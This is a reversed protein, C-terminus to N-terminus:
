SEKRDNSSEERDERREGGAPSPQPLGDRLGDLVPSSPSKDDTWDPRVDLLPLRPKASVQGYGPGFLARGARAGTHEGAEVTVKGNVVVTHIGISFAHPAAFTATDLVEAPDFVVIDAFAGPKLTGRDVLGVQAAPLSTMKRIADELTLVREERVYRGLVRPFTGYARPHVRIKGLLGRPSTAEADTAISVWPMAMATRVDDESMSHYLAFVNARHAELLGFYVDWADQKRASAIASIRKGVADEDGGAPVSAVEIADFDIRGLLADRSEMESRIRARAAADRLRAVVADPGGEQAWDPMPAALGTGAVAYPYQCASVRVRRQRAAELLACLAPMKGWSARGAVKLHFVVVPLSAGEGIAIAEGVSDMVSGSEGRVHTIYIGGLEGGARALTVLEGTGLYSAPPYALAAALGFAGERMSETVLARMADMEGPTAKRADQGMVRARVLDVSAFAGLNVATGSREVRRLYGEFGSWDMTLGLAGLWGVYRSDEELIRPTLLGPSGGEGILETTIGQRVHSSADGDALLSFISQSQIDVFGPAVVMGRAQVERAGRTGGLDGIMAIRDGRVGIDVRRAPAGTGDLVDGGRVILDFDSM